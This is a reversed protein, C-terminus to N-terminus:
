RTRFNTRFCRPATTAALKVTTPDTIILVTNLTTGPETATSPDRLKINRVNAQGQLVQGFLSYGGNLSPQPAVTIFFQSGNTNPGANAM